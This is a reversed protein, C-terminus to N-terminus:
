RHKRIDYNDAKKIWGEILKIDNVLDDLLLGPRWTAFRGLSYIGFEDTAYSMFKKRLHDDIPEIKAFSQDKTEISDEIVKRRSIGSVSCAQDVIGIMKAVNVKDNIELSVMDGEMTMRYFGIDQDPVYISAYAEMNEVRFRMVRASTYNFNIKEEEDWSLVKILVKMPVTSIIPPELKVEVSHNFHYDFEIDLGDALQYIFDKPSVWRDAIEPKLPISRDTRMSGFAKMSYQLAAAVPNEFDTTCKIMRVKKFPIGTLEGIIDSRFRLVAFHNNPLASAKEFIKVKHGRLQLIRGALLGSMGAGIIKINM